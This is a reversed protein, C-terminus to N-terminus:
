ILHRFEEPVRIYSGRYDSRRQAESKLYGILNNIKKKYNILQNSQYDGNSEIYVYYEDILSDLMEDYFIISHKYNCKPCVILQEVIGRIDEEEILGDFNRNCNDCRMREERRKKVLLFFVEVYNLLLIINELSRIEWMKVNYYLVIM